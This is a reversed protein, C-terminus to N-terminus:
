AAKRADLWAIVYTRARDVRAWYDSLTIGMRYSKVKAKGPIAYHADMIERLTPQMRHFAQNIEHAFPDSYVEPFHQKM